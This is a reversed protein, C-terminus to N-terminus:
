KLQFKAYHKTGDNLTVQVMHCTGPLRPTQWNYIFQGSYRFVTAGPAALAEIADTPEASSCPVPASGMGALSNLDSIYM